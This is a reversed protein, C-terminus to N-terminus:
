IGEQYNKPKPSSIEAATLPGNLLETELFPNRIVRPFKGAVKKPPGALARGLKPIPFHSPSKVRNGEVTSRRCLSCLALRVCRQKEKARFDQRWCFM